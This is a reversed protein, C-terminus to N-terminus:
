FRSIGGVHARRQSWERHLTISEDDTGSGLQRYEGLDHLPHTVRNIESEAREREVRLPNWKTKM